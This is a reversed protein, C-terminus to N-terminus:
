SPNPRRALLLLGACGLGMAGFLVFRDLVGELLFGSGAFLLPSVFQGAFFCAAFAGTGAGRVTEPLLRFAWAMLCLVSMGAGVQEIVLGAIMTAENHALGIVVMGSAMISLMFASQRRPDLWRGSLAFLLSGGIVALHALAFIEGQRAPSMVGVARFALGGQVIWVYFLIATVVTAFLMLAMLPLIAPPTVSEATEIPAAREPEPLALWCALALPFAIFYLSFVGNWMWAALYGSMAIIASSLFPASVGQVTLWFRRGREDWYDAILTVSITILAAEAVGLVLRLIVIVVLSEFALPMTGAVGYLLCAAILPKRRGVKDVLRGAFTGLLAIMLAPATVILPVFLRANPAGEFHDLMVPLSATMSAVAM